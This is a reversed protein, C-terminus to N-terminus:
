VCAHARPDAHTVVESIHCGWATMQCARSHVPGKRWVRWHLVCGGKQMGHAAGDAWRDIGDPLFDDDTTEEKKKKIEEMKQKVQQM